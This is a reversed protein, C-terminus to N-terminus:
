QLKEICVMGLDLIYDRELVGSFHGGLRMGDTYITASISNTHCLYALYLSAFNNGIINVM